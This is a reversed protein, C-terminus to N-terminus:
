LLCIFDNLHCPIGTLKGLVLFSHIAIETKNPSSAITSKTIITNNIMLHNPVM